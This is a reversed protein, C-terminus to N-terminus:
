RARQEPWMYRSRPAGAPAGHFPWVPEPREVRRPVPEPRPLARDSGALSPPPAPQLMPPDGSRAQSGAREAASATETTTDPARAPAEAYGRHRAREAESWPQPRCRCGEVLTKRYKFANPLAPYGMGTLDVASDVDGGPSSHYFLRAETGCSAACTDADRALSSGPAANSIPFYFGDCLRVCLTRYTGGPAFPQPEDSRPEAQYPSIPVAFPWAYAPRYPSTAPPTPSLRVGPATRPPAGGGFM